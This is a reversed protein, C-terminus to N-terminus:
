NEIAELHTCMVRVAPVTLLGDLEGVVLALFIAMTDRTGRGEGDGKGWM